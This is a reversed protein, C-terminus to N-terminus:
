GFSSGLSMMQSFSFHLVTKDREKEKEKQGKREKKTTDM